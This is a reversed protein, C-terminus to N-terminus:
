PKGQLMATLQKKAYSVINIFFKMEKEKESTFPVSESTKM